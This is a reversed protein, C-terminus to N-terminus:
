YVLINENAKIATEIRAVAADMDKMLFPNHLNDLSPRFFAKAEDFSHIGRQVLLKALTYEIGLEKALNTTILSDTEPKIKWRM